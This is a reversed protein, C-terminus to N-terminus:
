RQYLVALGHKNAIVLDSQGNGDLDAVCLYMGVGTDESAVHKVWTVQGGDRKLEYYATIAPEREGPDHGMHAWFRKGTVLGGLGAVLGHTQSFTKDIEHKVFKGDAQQEFWWLGYRHASSSVVDPRGDGNVDMVLMQACDEGLNAKHFTWPATRRDVPAEWWGERILVDLRGDGNVDGVGLGHYYMATGPAKPTSIDHSVWPKTVDTDPEWWQMLGPKQDGCVLVLKGNGLLDVFAPSENCANRCIVHETWLGGATGPNQYWYCPTNPLGIVVEDTWGDGDIDAAWVYFAKSYGKDYDYKGEKRIAHAQWGPAEYWVDGVLIDLKGDKNVDAVACGESRFTPDIVKKEWTGAAQAAAAFTLLALALRYRM